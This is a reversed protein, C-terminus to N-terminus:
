PKGPCPGLRFSLLGANRGVCENAYTLGNCGCVPQYDMTCIASPNIRKPDICDPGAAAQSAVPARCTGLGLILIFLVSLLRFPRM